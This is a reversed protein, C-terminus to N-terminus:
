GTYCFVRRTRKASCFGSTQPLHGGFFHFIIFFVPIVLGWGSPPTVLAVFGSVMQNYAELSKFVKFQQNTYYSTELVLYSLLDSVEIPPVCESSFQESPIAVLDLGVVSIKKLYREQVHSELNKAYSSLVPIEDRSEPNSEQSIDM